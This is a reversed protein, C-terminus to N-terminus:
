PVEIEVDEGVVRTRYSPVDEFAPGCVARGTALEFRAGHLPCEVEYGEVFGESLSGGAHTCTDGIAFFEQGIRFIAIREGQWEICIGRGEPIQSVKAVKQFRM